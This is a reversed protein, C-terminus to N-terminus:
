EELLLSLEEWQQLLTQTTQQKDDIQQQVHLAKEHNTYITPDSLQENLQAMEMELTELQQEIDEIQRTWQRRQKQAQKSQQYDLKATENKTSPAEIDIAQRKELYYDYDGDFYHAGNTSLEIIGSAVRNIFYRDHSVFLLTGDFAILAEELVEKSDLDLHNTPEDFLLLNDHQLALQALLVRAKEGGSLTQVPKDVTQKSFLFNGLLTRIDRENMTPFQDWLTQLVSKHTPLQSQNQDYYGISVNAGLKFNGKLAPIENIITKLLTSKGIGNPGVIAISQQKRVDLDIPFSLLSDYGIGLKESTLVVNGSEVQTTFSFRASQEDGKPKELRVLKELQKRRSQARKTTSARTINKAIFDEMHKIDAQQKDYAKQLSKLRVAKEEVYYTYNGKYHEITHHALEYIEDVVNDLFYRDHSVILLAGKYQKLYSELWHLTEIDLHNTPEDLLLLDPQELLLKALALRTRQGGSLSNVPRNYDAEYFRFGHLVSRISSEYQYGGEQAFQTSLSDYTQLAQAYLHSDALVTEDTLKLSAEVVEKQLHILHDFVHLMEEWITLSSNIHTYQDLYGIRVNNPKSIAGEDPSEIGALIKLLTSKGSGNRGVLAVRASQQIHISIKQFLVDGEFIRALQQGQLVIM